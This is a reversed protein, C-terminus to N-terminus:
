GDLYNKIMFDRLEDETPNAPSCGVRTVVLAASATGRQLSEKATYGQALGTVFGGLFADGAGTPKLAKVPYIGMGLCAGDVFAILGKEGRKYVVLAGHKDALARAFSLGDDHGALVSFEEDNGILIDTQRAAEGCISAAEDRSSWSYPRYDIDLIVPCSAARARKFAEFSASRSPEIALSTGTVILAAANQYDLASVDQVTLAFDAANNRYLVSQCNEARTEVVALSTREEGKVFRVHDTGVGYHKLQAVVYRGVADDSVTTLLAASSGLRAIASAINAASGGLAPFFGRADEIRTGPPDAYLDLGARGLILFMGKTLRERKM